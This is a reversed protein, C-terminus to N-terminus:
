NKKGLISLIYLFIQIIDIYLLMAALVYEDIKLEVTKGGLIMQTDIVLYVGFLLVGVCCYLNTLFPSSVFFSTVGLLILCSFLVLVIGYSTTFDEETNCAYITLVAVIM